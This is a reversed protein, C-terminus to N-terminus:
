LYGFLMTVLDLSNIIRVILNKRLVSISTVKNRLYFTLPYAIARELKGKNRRWVRRRLYIRKEGEPLRKIVDIEVIPEGNELYVFSFPPDYKRQVLASLFDDDYFRKLISFNEIRQKAIALLEAEDARAIEYIDRMANKLGLLAWLPSIDCIPAFSSVWRELGPYSSDERGM